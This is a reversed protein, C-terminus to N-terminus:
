IGDDDYDDDNLDFVHKCKPCQDPTSETRMNTTIMCIGAFLLWGWAWASVGLSMLYAATLFITTSPIDAILMQVGAPMQKSMRKRILHKIRRILKRAVDEGKTDYIRAVLNYIRHESKTM